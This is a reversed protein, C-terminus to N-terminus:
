VPQQHPHVIQLRQRPQRPQIPSPIANFDGNGHLHSLEHGWFSTEKVSCALINVRVNGGAYRGDGYRRSWFVVSGNELMEDDRKMVGEGGRGVKSRLSM